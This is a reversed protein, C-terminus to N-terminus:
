RAALERLKRIVVIVAYILLGGISGPAEAGFLTVVASSFFLALASPGRGVPAMSLSVTYVIESIILGLLAMIFPLMILIPREVTLWLILQIVLAYVFIFTASNWTGGSIIDTILMFAGPVLTFLLVIIVASLTPRRDTFETIMSDGRDIQRPTM